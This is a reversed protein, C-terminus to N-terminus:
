AKDMESRAKLMQAGAFLIALSNKDLTRLLEVMSKITVKKENKM